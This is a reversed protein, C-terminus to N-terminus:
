MAGHIYKPQASDPIFTTGLIIATAAPAPPATAVVAVAAAVAAFITAFAQARRCARHRRIGVMSSGEGRIFVQLFSDRPDSPVFETTCCQMQAGTSCTM